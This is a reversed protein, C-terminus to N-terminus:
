PFRRGHTSSAGPTWCTTWPAFRWRLAAASGAPVFLPPSLASVPHLISTKRLTHTAQAQAESQAPKLSIHRSLCDIRPPVSACKNRLAGDRYSPGEGMGAAAAERGYPATAQRSRRPLVDEEEQQQQERLARLRAERQLALRQFRPDIHKFQPRRAFPGSPDAFCRAAIASPSSLHIKSRAGGERDSRADQRLGWGGPQDRHVAARQKPPSNPRLNTPTPSCCVYPRPKTADYEVPRKAYSDLGRTRREAPEFVLAFAHPCDM